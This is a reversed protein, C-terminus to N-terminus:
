GDPSGRYGRRVGRWFRVVRVASPHKFAETASENWEDGKKGPEKRRRARTEGAM